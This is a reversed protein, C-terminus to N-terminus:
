GNLTAAVDRAWQMVALCEKCTVDGARLSVWEGNETAHMEPHMPTTYHVVREADTMEAETTM